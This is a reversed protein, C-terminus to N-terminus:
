REERRQLHILAKIFDLVHLVDVCMVRLTHTSDLKVDVFVLVQDCTLDGFIYLVSFIFSEEVPPHTLVHGAGTM